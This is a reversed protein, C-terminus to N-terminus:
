FEVTYVPGLDVGGAVSLRKLQRGQTVTTVELSGGPQRLPWTQRGERSRLAQWAAAAAGGAACRRPHTLAADQATWLATELTQARFDWALLGAAPTNAEEALAPLTALLAEEPPLAAGKEVAWAVAGPFTVQAPARGVQPLPLDLAAQGTLPNVHVALPEPWGAGELPVKRERRIGAQVAYAFAAQRLTEGGCGGAACEVRAVGGQAPATLFAAQRPSLERIALLRRTLPAYEERPVPTLVLLLGEGGPDIMQFSLKM